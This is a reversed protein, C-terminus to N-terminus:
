GWIGKTQVVSPKLSKRCRGDHGRVLGVPCRSRRTGTRLKVRGGEAQDVTDLVVALVLILCLSFAFFKSGMIEKGHESKFKSISNEALRLFKETPFVDGLDKAEGGSCEPEFLRRQCDDIVTLFNPLSKRAEQLSALCRGFEQSLYLAKAKYLRAKLSFKSIFIAKNCDEVAAEYRGLKIFALARNNYLCASDRILHIAESYCRVAEHFNKKVCCVNGQQRLIDSQVKREQWNEKRGQIESPSLDKLFDAEIIEIESDCYITEYNADSNEPDNEPTPSKRQIEPPSDGAGKTRKFESSESDVLTQAKLLAEEVEKPDESGIGNIINVILGIDSMLDDKITEKVKGENSGDDQPQPLFQSVPLQDRPITSEVSGEVVGDDVVEM